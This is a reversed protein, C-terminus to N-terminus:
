KIFIMPEAIAHNCLDILKTCLVLRAQDYGSDRKQGSQFNNAAQGYPLGAQAFAGQSYGSSTGTM